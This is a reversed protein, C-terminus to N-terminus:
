GVPCYTGWAFVRYDRPFPSRIEFFADVNRLRKPIMQASSRDPWKRLAVPSRGVRRQDVAIMQTADGGLGACIGGILFTVLM